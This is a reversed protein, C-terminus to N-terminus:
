PSSVTTNTQPTPNASTPSPASVMPGLVDSEWVGLVNGADDELNVLLTGPGPVVLGAVEGALRNLQNGQFDIPIKSENLIMGNLTLKIKVATVAPEAPSKGILGLIAFPALAVPFIATHIQEILNFASLRNSAADISYGTACILYKLKMDDGM